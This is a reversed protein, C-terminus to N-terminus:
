GSRRQGSVTVTHFADGPSCRTEGCSAEILGVDVGRDSASDRTGRHRRESVREAPAIQGSHGSIDRNSHRRRSRLRAM